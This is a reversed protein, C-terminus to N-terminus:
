YISIFGSTMKIYCKCSAGDWIQILRKFSELSEPSKIRVPLSNSIESALSRLSKTGYRVQNTQPTGFNM